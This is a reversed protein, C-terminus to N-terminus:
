RRRGARWRFGGESFALDELEVEKPEEKKNGGFLRSLFGRQRRESLETVIEEFVQPDEPLSLRRVLLPYSIIKSINLDSVSILTSCMGM